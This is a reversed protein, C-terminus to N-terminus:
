DEIGTVEYGTEDIKERILNISILSSDYIVVSSSDIYSTSVEKIGDLTEISKSVTNECGECTMGNVKLIVSVFNSSDAIESDSQTKNTQQVCTSFILLSGLLLLIKM